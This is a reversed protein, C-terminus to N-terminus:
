PAEIYQAIMQLLLDIKMPKGLMPLGQAAVDPDVDRYATMVIIPPPQQGIRDRVIRLFTYGDMVPMRLDLLILRPRTHELQVLADVGNAAIQVPYHADELALALMMSMGPDDEVILIPRPDNGARATAAIVGADPAHYLWRRRDFPLSRAGIRTHISRSPPQPHPASFM